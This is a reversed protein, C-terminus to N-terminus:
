LVLVLVVISATLCAIGALERRTVTERFFLVSAALSFILEVQGLAYVYAATQLTFATFWGLTGGMSSLGLWIARRRAAWVAALQGPERWHLWAAMGLAQLATVCVLTIAARLIPDEAGVQLTAARYGVGSIAFFFGSGLGLVVARSRMRQWLAETLGPTESLLLVGVLGIGIALWGGPSVAEGLVVFGLLATQIVETKKFTIGVAFNRERFTLVVLVTALIQGMGGLVAWGLFGPGLPPLTHGTAYLYGGLALLAFPSAYAFRAFTSGTASLGSGALIKHLMFRVTQFLAAILSAIVWLEM